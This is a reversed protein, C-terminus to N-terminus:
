EGQHETVLVYLGLNSGIVQPSVACSGRRFEVKATAAAVNFVIVMEVPEM